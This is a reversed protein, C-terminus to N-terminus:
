EAAHENNPGDDPRHMAPRRTHALQKTLQAARAPGPQRGHHASRRVRELSRGVRDDRCGGPTTRFRSIQHAAQQGYATTLSGLHVANRREVEIEGRKQVPATPVAIWQLRTRSLGNDAQQRQGPRPAAGAQRFWSSLQHLLQHENQQRQVDADDRGVQGTVRGHQDREDAVRMLRAFQVGLPPVPENGLDLRQPRLELRRHGALAANRPGPQVALQQAGLADGGGIRLGDAGPHVGHRATRVRLPPTAGSAEAANM